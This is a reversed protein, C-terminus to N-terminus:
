RTIGASASSSKRSTTVRPFACAVTAAFQRTLMMLSDHDYAMHVARRPEM